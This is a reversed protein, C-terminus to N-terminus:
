SFVPNNHDLDLDCCLNVIDSLIQGSFIKQVASCKTVLGTYQDDFAPTDYSFLCFVVLLCVVAFFLFVLVFM